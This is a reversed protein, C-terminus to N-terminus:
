LSRSIYLTQLQESWSRVDSTTRWGWWFQRWGHGGGQCGQGVRWLTRPAERKQHRHSRQSFGSSHATLNFTSHPINIDHMILNHIQYTDLIMCWLPSTPEQHFHCLPFHLSSPFFLCQFSRKKRWFHFLAFYFILM